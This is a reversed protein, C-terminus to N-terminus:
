LCCFSLLFFNSVCHLKWLGKEVSSAPVKEKTGMPRNLDADSGFSVPALSSAFSSSSSKKKKKEGAM